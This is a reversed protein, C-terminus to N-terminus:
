APRRRPPSGIKISVGVVCPLVRMRSALRDLTAGSVKLKASLRSGGASRSAVVLRDPMVDYLAFIGAARLVDEIGGATAIDIVVVRGAEAADSPPGPYPSISGESFM